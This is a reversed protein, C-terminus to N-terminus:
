TDITRQRPLVDFLGPLEDRAAREAARDRVTPATLGPVADVLHLLWAPAPKRTLVARAVARSPCTRQGRGTQWGCTPCRGDIPAAHDALVALLVPRAPTATLRADLDAAAPARLTATM